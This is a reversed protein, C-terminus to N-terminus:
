RAHQSLSNSRYEGALRLETIMDGRYFEGGMENHPVNESTTRRAGGEGSVFTELRNQPRVDASCAASCRCLALRSM